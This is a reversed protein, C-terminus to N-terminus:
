RFTLMTGTIASVAVSKSSFTLKWRDASTAAVDEAFALRVSGGLTLTGEQCAVVTAKGSKKYLPLKEPDTIVIRAGDALALRQTIKLYKGAFLDDASCEIRDTVTFYGRNVSGCGALFPVTVPTSASAFSLVGDEKVTVGAGAPMGDQAVNAANFALVGAEVTVGGKFTNAGTLTIRGSGRKTLGKWGGTPQDELTVACDYGTALGGATLRVSATTYGWGPSTVVINTVTHTVDDFLAFASAGEGDGTITVVPSGVLKESSPISPEAISAIRKGEMGPALLPFGIVVSDGAAQGGSGNRTETTDITFGGEYVTATPYRVADDRYTFSFSSGCQVPCLVGGNLNLYFPLASSIRYMYKAAVAGGDNINIFTEAGANTLLSRFYNGVQLKTSEGSVTAFGHSAYNRDSDNCFTFEDDFSNTTGGDQYYVVTGGRLAFGLKNSGIFKASGGHTAMVFKGSQGFHAALGDSPVNADFIFNGGTLGFYGYSGGVKGSNDYSANSVPWYSLGGRQYLAGYGERGIALGYNTVVSSGNIELVGGRGSTAGTVVRALARGAGNTASAMVTSGNLILRAVASSRQINVNSASTNSVVVDAFSVPGLGNVMLEGGATLSNGSLKIQTTVVSPNLTLSSVASIPGSLTNRADDSVTNDSTITASGSANIAWALTSINRVKLTAGDAVTITNRSSGGTMANGNNLFFTGNAVVVNGPDDTTGDAGKFATNPLYFVDSGAKTLAFGKLNVTGGSSNIGVQKNITITADAALTLTKFLENAATTGGRIFAGGDNVGAGAIVIECNKLNSPSSSESTTLNLTAGSSVTIKTPTGLNPIGYVALTGQQVEIEGTFAPQTTYTGFNITTKGIGTKVIKTAAAYSTSDSYTNDNAGDGVELDDCFAPGAFLATLMAIMCINETKM